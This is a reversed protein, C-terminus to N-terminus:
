QRLGQSPDVAAKGITLYSGQAVFVLRGTLVLTLPLLFYGLSVGLGHDNIPAWMFLWLQV